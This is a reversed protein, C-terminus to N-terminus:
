QAGPCPAELRVLLHEMGLFSAEPAAEKRVSFTVDPEDSSPGSGNVVIGPAPRPPAASSTSAFRWAEKEAFAAAPVLCCRHRRRAPRPGAVVSGRVEATGARARRVVAANEERGNCRRQQGRPRGRM